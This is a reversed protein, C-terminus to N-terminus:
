KISVLPSDEAKKLSGIEIWVAWRWVINKEKSTSNTYFKRLYRIWRKLVPFPSM